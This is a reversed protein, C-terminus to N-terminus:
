KKLGEIYSFLNDVAVEKEQLEVSLRFNTEKLLDNEEALKSLQQQAELYQAMLKEREATNKGM